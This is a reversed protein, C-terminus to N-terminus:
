GLWNALLEFVTCGCTRKINGIKLLGQGTNTFKFECTNKSDQGVEGLDCVTKELSIRSLQNDIQPTKEPTTEQSAVIQVAKASPEATQEINPAKAAQQRCGILLLLILSVLTFRLALKNRKMNADPESSDTTTTTILTQKTQWLTKRESEGALPM